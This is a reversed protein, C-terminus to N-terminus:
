GDAYFERGRPTGGSFRDTSSVGIDFIRREAAARARAAAGASACSAVGSRLGFAVTVWVIPMVFASTTYLRGDTLPRTIQPSSTGHSLTQRVPAFATVFIENSVSTVTSPWFSGAPVYPRKVIGPRVSHVTM